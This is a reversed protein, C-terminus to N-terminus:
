DEDEKEVEEYEKEVEKEEKEVKKISERFSVDLIDSLTDDAAPILSRLIKFFIHVVLYMVVIAIVTLWDLTFAESYVIVVGFYAMVNIHLPSSIYFAIRSPIWHFFDMFFLFIGEAMIAMAILTDENLVIESSFSDGYLKRFLDISVFVMVLSNGVATNWGLEERKHYSFYFGLMILTFLLPVAMWLMEKQYIPASLLDYIRPFLQDFLFHKIPSAIDAQAYNSINGFFQSFPDSSFSFLLGTENVM